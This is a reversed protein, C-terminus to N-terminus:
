PADRAAKQAPKKAQHYWAAEHRQLDGAEIRTIVAQLDIRRWGGAPQEATQVQALLFGAVCVLNILVLAIFGLDRRHLHKLWAEM